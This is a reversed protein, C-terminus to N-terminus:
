MDKDTQIQYQTFNTSTEGNNVIIEFLCLIATFGKPKLANKATKKSFLQYLRKSRNEGAKFNKM